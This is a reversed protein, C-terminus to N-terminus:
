LVLWGALGVVVGVVSLRPELGEAGGTSVPEASETESPMGTGVATTATGSPAGSTENASGEFEFDPFLRTTNADMLVWHHLLASGDVISQYQDERCTAELDLVYCLGPPQEPPEDTFGWTDAPGETHYTSNAATDITGTAIDRNFLVRNFIEYATQPAYYPVEHGAQFVRTFSLNGYQRVQGGVYTENTQIGAYGAAHFDATSSWNIALSVAEGGIWNCAYDRDGYMLSVKIGEDLLYALDELWGARPYDGIGRFQQAVVGNSQSWNLPVGLAQQVHPQNLYGRYFPEPWPDPDIITIDYYNRGSNDLYGDRVGSSCFTEADQCIENVTDNLGRQSPDGIAAAARCDNIKDRCGGPRNLADLMAEYVTENVTQIGYTNNFAMHPYSPWQVQRDICGNVILLTDLHIYYMEGVETWTGNEIRENQQQFFATFAPGYRGGYSETAISVRDDNPKYAPFEQFWVQAFHWLARAANRSGEATNNGNYSSYTGVLFTANQEPVGTASFDAVEVGNVVDVTVNQLTDYSLGVQVPQDLYLMNVHENWSLPNSTTSNSDPNVWCPGNEVFLGLMSSSGPGGNMWISLPANAPDHRASFFWFFTNIPYEQAENLDGLTGAPLHVYGAYSKVGPTTECLNPEKYSIYVGDDFRSNLVTVDKPTPPFQANVLRSFAIIGWGITTLSVM